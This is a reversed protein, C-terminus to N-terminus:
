DLILDHLDFLRSLVLYRGMQQQLVMVVALMLYLQFMAMMMRLMLMGISFEVDMM